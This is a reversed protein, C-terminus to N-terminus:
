HGELLGRVLYYAPKPNLGEDFLLPRNPANAATMIFRDLWTNSDDLGWVTIGSCGPVAMCAAFVRGYAIGQARLSDSQDAFLGLPIDLETLEVQLGLATLRAIQQQLLVGDPPQLGLHAQLGVGHIPVGRALLDSALALLADFKAPLYETFTENLFLQASPDALHASHFAIDLYEEGLTRYFINDADFGTGALELPENVVDWQTIRGAYRGVTTAVHEEILNRLTAAPEPATAVVEALWSPPGNLRHWILTHGRIRLGAADAVAVTADAASFDYVGAAPSLSHWKMANEPTLSTFEQQVLAIRDPTMDHGIAVGVQIGAKRAAQSLTPAADEEVFVARLPPATRGWFKRVDSAPVNFSCQNSATMACYNVWHDFRWGDRPTAYYTEQYDRATYNESCASSAQRYDEATCTRGAQSWIDGEGVIELPHSCAGLLIVCCTTIARGTLNALFDSSCRVWRM